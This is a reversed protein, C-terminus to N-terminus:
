KTSDGYLLKAADFITYLCGLIFATATAHKRDDDVPMTLDCTMKHVKYTRVLKLADEHTYAVWLRPNADILSDMLQVCYAQYLWYEINNARDFYDTLTPGDTDLYMLNYVVNDIVLEIFHESLAMSYDRLYKSLADKCVETLKFEDGRAAEILEVDKRSILM